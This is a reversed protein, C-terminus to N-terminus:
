GYIKWFELLLAPLATFIYGSNRTNLLSSCTSSDTKNLKDIKLCINRVKQRRLNLKLNSLKHEINYSWKTNSYKNRLVNIWLHRLCGCLCNTPFCCLKVTAAILTDELPEKTETSNKIKICWKTIYLPYLHHCLPM